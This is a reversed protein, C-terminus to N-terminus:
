RCKVFNMPIIMISISFLSLFDTIEPQPDPVKDVSYGESSSCHFPSLVVFALYGLVKEM